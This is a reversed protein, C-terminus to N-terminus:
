LPWWDKVTVIMVTAIGIVAGNFEAVYAGALAAWLCAWLIKDKSM